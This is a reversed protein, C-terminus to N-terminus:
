PAQVFLAAFQDPSGPGEGGFSVGLTDDSLRAVDLLFGIIEFSDRTFTVTPGGRVYTGWERATFVVGTNRNRATLGIAYAGDDLELDGSLYTCCGLGEHDYPLTSDNLQRLTYSAALPGPNSPGDGCAALAVLMALLARPMPM